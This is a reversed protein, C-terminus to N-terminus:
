ETSTHSVTLSHHLSWLSHSADYYLMSFLSSLLLSCNALSLNGGTGLDVDVPTNRTQQTSIGIGLQGFNNSGWCKLGGGTTLAFTATAGLAIDSAGSLHPPQPIPPHHNPYFQHVRRALGDSSMPCMVSRGGVSEPWKPGSSLYMDGVQWTGGKCM